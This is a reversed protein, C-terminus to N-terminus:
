QAAPQRTSAVRQTKKKRIAPWHERAEEGVIGEPEKPHDKSWEVGLRRCLALADFPAKVKADNDFYVYVDRSKRALPARDSICRKDCPQQGTRWETMRAAWWDLAKDTYGSVYLEEDGHLRAYVFDATVDEAYPWRRATDAFVFAINHKRLLQMFEPVLFTPHRIEVAYRLKRKKDTKTLARGKLKDNHEKALEAASETDRPLLEFFEAFREENYAFGPPFQWLIPGLKEKLALIGSAFFNALPVRVDKLKKMHTIFRGGKVSFVFDEPTQEYWTRYSSPLQLSYFSGNIEISNFTKSAFELERKQTLDKPYFTGRWPTYTWGSIGIRTQAM